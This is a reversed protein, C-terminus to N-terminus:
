AMRVTMERPDRDGTIELLKGVADKDLHIDRAKVKAQEVPNVLGNM